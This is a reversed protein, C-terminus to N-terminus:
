VLVKDVGDLALNPDFQEPRFDGAAQMDRVKKVILLQAAEIEGASPKMGGFYDQLQKQRNQPQFKILEGFRQQREAEPLHFLAKPWTQEPIQSLIKEVAEPNWSLIKTFTLMRKEIESAWRKDEVAILKLLQEQKVSTSTEILNLIQKFGGAKRYRKLMSM